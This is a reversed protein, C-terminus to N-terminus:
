MSPPKRDSDRASRIWQVQRAKLFRAYIPTKWLVYLVAIALSGLSIIRRGFRMWALLVSLAIMLAVTAAIALPFVTQYCIYLAASSLCVAIVLLILLALPPVSLDLALVLSNVNLPALSHLLLRPADKLMLGLHGHEWRTRQSKIGDDSTPFVSTVLAEPCFLPPAGARALDIGLRADEVIHGTALDARAVSAWPFAMGSGMLQCPLGLRHLGTPRVQNKLVWAFQAIRTMVGAGEPSNMLYLAQVPRGTRACVRALRDISGAATRCDADIVIIVDPPNIELHRIGFDVAYGKGRDVPNTRVIVEAGEATAVAATNDSCNDAVVILRDGPLLQPVVSRLAEAIVPAEDHAPMLIALCRREGEPASAERRDMMAVLVELFLVAAPLLLLLAAADLLIQLILM